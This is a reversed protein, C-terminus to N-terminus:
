FTALVDLLGFRLLFVGFFLTDGVGECRERKFFRGGADARLRKGRHHARTGRSAKTMPKPELFREVVPSCLNQTM